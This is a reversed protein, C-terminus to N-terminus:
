KIILDLEFNFKSPNKQDMISQGPIVTSFYNNQKFSLIQKAITQFSDGVCSITITKDDKGYELSNVYVSPLISSEIQALTDPMSKNEKMAKEAIDSRNKFDLIEGGNGALFKDNEIKNEAQVAKIKSLIVQNSAFLAGYLIIVGLVILMSFFLGKGIPSASTRSVNETSLNINSM